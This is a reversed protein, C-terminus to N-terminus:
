KMMLRVIAFALRCLCIGLRSKASTAARKVLTSILAPSLRPLWTKFPIQLSCCNSILVMVSVKFVRLNGLRQSIIVRFDGMGMVWVNFM